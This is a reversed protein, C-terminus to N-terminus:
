LTKNEWVLFKSSHSGTTPQASSRHAVQSVRIEWSSAGGCEAGDVSHRPYISVDSVGGQGTHWIYPDISPSATHFWCLSNVQRNDTSSFRQIFNNKNAWYISFKLLCLLSLDCFQPIAAGLEISHLYVLYVPYRCLVNRLSMVRAPAPSPRLAASVASLRWSSSCDCWVGECMLVM